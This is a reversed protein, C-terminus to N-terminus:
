MSKMSHIGFVPGNKSFLNYFGDSKGGGWYMCNSWLSWVPPARLKKIPAWFIESPILKQLALGSDILLHPRYHSIKKLRSCEISCDMCMTWIESLIMSCFHSLCGKQAPSASINTCYETVVWIHVINLPTHTYLSFLVKKIWGDKKISKLIVKQMWRMRLKQLWLDRLVQRM